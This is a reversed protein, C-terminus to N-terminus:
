EDDAGLVVAKKIQTVFQNKEIVSLNLHHATGADIVNGLHIPRLYHQAVTCARDSLGAASVFVYNELDPKEIKVMLAKAARDALYEVSERPTTGVPNDLWRFLKALANSETINM